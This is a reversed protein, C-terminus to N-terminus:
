GSLVSLLRKLQGQVSGDMVNDEARVMMGGLLSPDIKCELSVKQKLRNELAKTLKDKMPQTLEVASSVQVSLIKEIAAHYSKFLKTIAPLLSLRKHEALLFIFNRKDQRDLMAQLVDCFFDALQASTVEPRDMLRVVAPDKAIEASAMLLAEWASLAKKDQAYEFAALAYPRALTTAGIM